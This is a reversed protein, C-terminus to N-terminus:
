IWKGTEQNFIVLGKLKMKITMDISYISSRIFTHKENKM